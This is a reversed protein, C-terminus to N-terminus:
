MHCENNSALAKIMYLLYILTTLHDYMYSDLNMHKFTESWWYHMAVLIQHLDEKRKKENLVNQDLIQLM